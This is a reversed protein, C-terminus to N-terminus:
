GHQTVEVLGGAQPHRSEAGRLLRSGSGEVTTRRSTDLGRGM